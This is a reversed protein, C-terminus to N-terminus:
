RQSLVAYTTGGIQVRIPTQNPSGVAAVPVYLTENENRVAIYHSMGTNDKYVNIQNTVGDKRYFMATYTVKVYVIYVYVEQYYAQANQGYIQVDLNQVHTNTWPSPAGSYNTVNFWSLTPTNVVPLSQYSGYNCKWNIYTNITFNYNYKIGVEVKTIQWNPITTGTHASFTFVSCPTGSAPIRCIGYTNADSDILNSKYYWSTGNDSGTDYYYTITAM